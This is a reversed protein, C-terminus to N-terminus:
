QRRRSRLWRWLLVVRHVAEVWFIQIFAINQILAQTEDACWHM